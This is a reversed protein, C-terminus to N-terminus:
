RDAQYADLDFDMLGVVISAFSLVAWGNVATPDPHVVFMYVIYSLWGGFYFLHPRWIRLWRAVSGSGIPYPRHKWFRTAGWALIISLIIEISWFAFESVRVSDM